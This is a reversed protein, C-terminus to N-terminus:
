WGFREEEPEVNQYYRETPELFVTARNPQNEKPEEFDSSELSEKIKKRASDRKEPRQPAPMSSLQMPEYTDENEFADFTEEDDTPTIITAVSPQTGFGSLEEDDDVNSEELAGISKTTGTKNLDAGANVKIGRKQALASLCDGLFKCQSYHQVLSVRDERITDIITLLDVKGEDQLQNIAYDLAIYSGSRGVGASCHVVVPSTSTGESQNQLIAERADLIDDCHSKGQPNKPFSHDPWSHFWFHKVLRVPDFHRRIKLTTVDYGIRTEVDHCQVSIPGFKMPATKSEPWYKECKNKGNEVLGTIMVVSRVDNEWVMKWMADCTHSTPGQTCIYRKADGGYGRVFNANIYTATHDEPQGSLVVRTKSNPIVDLHRNFELNRVSADITWKDTKKAPINKFAKSKIPAINWTSYKKSESTTQSMGSIAESTPASAPVQVKVNEYVDKQVVGSFSADMVMTDKPTTTSNKFIRGTSHFHVLMALTLAAVIIVSCFARVLVLEIGDECYEASM